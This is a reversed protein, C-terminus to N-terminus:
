GKMCTKVFAGLERGSLGKDRVQMKCQAQTPKAPSLKAPAPKAPAPKAPTPKAPTPAAPTAQAPLPAPAPPPLPSVPPAPQPLPVSPTLPPAPQPLPVSPPSGVTTGQPQIQASAKMAVLGPLAILAFALAARGIFDTRIM